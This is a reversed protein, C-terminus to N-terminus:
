GRRCREVFARFWARAWPETAVLEEPHCQVTCILGGSGELGEVVGDQSTATVELGPAVERVAQHHLSNVLLAAGAARALESGTRAEVTHALFCRERDHRDHGPVHQHLTGGLAVNVAQQGRCIGLLPLGLDVARRVAEMELEDLPGDVEGLEPGPQEGYRRPDLDAGGPLCLGAADGLSTPSGAPVLVARAGAAELARVYPLYYGGPRRPSCTLAVRPRRTQRM